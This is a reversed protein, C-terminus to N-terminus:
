FGGYVARLTSGSTGSSLTLTLTNNTIKMAFKAYGTETCIQFYIDSSSNFHNRPVCAWAECSSNGPRAGVLIYNIKTLINYIISTYIIPFKWIRIYIFSYM